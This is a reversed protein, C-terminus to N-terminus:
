KGPDDDGSRASLGLGRRDRTLENAVSASISPGGDKRLRTGERSDGRSMPSGPQLVLLSDLAHTRWCKRREMVM